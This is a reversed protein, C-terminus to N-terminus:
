LLLGGELKSCVAPCVRDNAIQRIDNDAALPEVIPTDRRLAGVNVARPPNETLRSRVAQARLIGSRSREQRAVPSM